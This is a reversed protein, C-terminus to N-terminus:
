TRMERAIANLKTPLWLYQAWVEGQYIVKVVWVFECEKSDVLGPRKGNARMEDILRPVGYTKVRLIEPPLPPQKIVVVELPMEYSGESYWKGTPKFYDIKITATIM